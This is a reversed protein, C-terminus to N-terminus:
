TSTMGLCRRAGISTVMAGLLYDHPIGNGDACQRGGDHGHEGRAGREGALQDRQDLKDLVGVIGACM